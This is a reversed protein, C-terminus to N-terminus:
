KKSTLELLFIEQFHIFIIAIVIVKIITINLATLLIIVFNVAFKLPNLKFHIEMKDLKTVVVITTM